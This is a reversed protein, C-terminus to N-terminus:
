LSPPPGASRRAGHAHLSGTMPHARPGGASPLLSPSLSVFPPTGGECPLVRSARGHCSRRRCTLRHLTRVQQHHQQDAGPGARSLMRSRFTVLYPLVLAPPADAASDAMAVSEALATAADAQAQVALDALADASGRAPGGLAAGGSRYDGRGGGRQLQSVLPVSAGDPALGLLARTRRSMHSKDMAALAAKPDPLLAPFYQLM